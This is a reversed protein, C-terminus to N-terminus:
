RHKAPHAAAPKVNAAIFASADKSTMITAPFFFHAPNRDDIQGVGGDGGDYKNERKHCGCGVCSAFTWVAHLKQVGSGDQDDLLVCVFDEDDVDLYAINFETLAPMRLSSHM